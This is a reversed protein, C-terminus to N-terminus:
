GTGHGSLRRRPARPEATPRTRRRPPTVGPRVATGAPPQGLRRFRNPAASADWELSRTHVLEESGDDYIVVVEVTTPKEVSGEGATPSEDTRLQQDMTAGRVEFSDIEGPLTENLVVVRIRDEWHEIVVALNPDIREAQSQTPTPTATASTASASVSWRVRRPPPPPGPSGNRPGM